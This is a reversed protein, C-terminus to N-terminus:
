RSVHSRESDGVINFGHISANEMYGKFLGSITSGQMAGCHFLYMINECLIVNMPSLNNYQM